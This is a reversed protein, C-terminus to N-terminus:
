KDFVNLYRKKSALLKRNVDYAEYSILKLASNEVSIPEVSINITIHDIEVTTSKINDKFHKSNVALEEILLTARIKNKKLASLLVNNYVMFFVGIGIMIIIM